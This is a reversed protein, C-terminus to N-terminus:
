MKSYIEINTRIVPLDDSLEITLTNLFTDSSSARPRKSYIKTNSAILPREINDNHKSNLPKKLILLM